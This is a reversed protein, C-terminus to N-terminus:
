LNFYMSINIYMYSKWGSIGSYLIWTINEFLESRSWLSGLSARQDQDTSNSFTLLTNQFKCFSLAFFRSNLFLPRTWFPDDSLEVILDPTLPNIPVYRFCQIWATLPWVWLQKQWHLIAKLGMVTLCSNTESIWITQIRIVSRTVTDLRHSVWGINRGFLYAFRRLRSPFGVLFGRLFM